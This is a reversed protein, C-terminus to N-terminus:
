AAARAPRAPVPSGTALWPGRLPLQGPGYWGPSAELAAPISNVLQAATSLIAASGPDVTAHLEHRGFVHTEDIPRVGAAAPAAHLLM